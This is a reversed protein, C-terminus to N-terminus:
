KSGLMVLHDILRKRTTIKQLTGDASVVVGIDALLYKKSWAKPKLLAAGISTTTTLIDQGMVDNGFLMSLSAQIESRTGGGHNLFELIKGSDTIWRQKFTELKLLGVFRESADLLQIFQFQKGFAEELQELHQIVVKETMTGDRAIKKSLVVPNKQAKITKVNDEELFNKLLTLNPDQERILTFINLGVVLEDLNKEIPGAIARISPDFVKNLIPVLAEKGAPSALYETVDKQLNAKGSGELYAAVAAKVNKDVTDTVSKTIQADLKTAATSAANPIAWILSFAVALAGGGFLPIGLNQFLDKVIQGKLEAALESKLRQYTADDLRAPESGSNETAM